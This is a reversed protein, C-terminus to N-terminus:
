ELPGTIRELEELSTIGELVRLLGDVQFPIMGEKLAAERVEEISPANPIIKEIEGKIQFMEFIGIRGKYGTNHCFKCGKARFFKLNNIDFKLQSKVKEPLSNIKEKIKEIIGLPPRDEVKCYQCLRRLLRQAIALNLAPGINSPTVGMEILRPITGAADNTHLTSFVLHGTLAAQVATNATDQDRIEGVLIVDPDQRLAARLANAFDYGKEPEVQTQAIGELHYEIPDEITFVKIQPRAIYRLCAYLTTTKGSGTPGTTLIMGTPKSMEYLLIEKLWPHLGLQDITLIMKPNLIRMVVDEGYEGPVVSVRVEIEKGEYLITFRGDQAVDTVNVKLHALVKIRALLPSWLYKEFFFITHMIGDLRFRVRVDNSRPVIHIDSADFSLAGILIMKLFYNVGKNKFIEIKEKFEDLSEIEKVEEKKIVIKGIVKEVDKPVKEYEKWARLLSTKSCLFLQTKYGKKKLLSLTEKLVPNQPNLCAIKLNKELLYFPAFKGQRAKEEDVLSLADISIPTVILNIYPLGLVKARKRALKEEEERKLFYLSSEREKEKKSFYPFATM